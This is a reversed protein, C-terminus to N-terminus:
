EGTYPAPLQQALRELSEAQQQGRRLDGELMRHEEGGRERATILQAEAVAAIAAAQHHGLADRQASRAAGM